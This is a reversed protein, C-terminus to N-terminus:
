RSGMHFQRIADTLFIAERPSQNAKWVKFTMENPFADSWAKLLSMSYPGAKICQPSMCYWLCSNPDDVTKKSVEIPNDQEEDDDSIEISQLGPGNQKNKLRELLISNSQAGPICAVPQGSVLEPHNEKVQIIVPVNIVAQHIDGDNREHSSVTHHQQEVDESKPGQCQHEHKIEMMESTPDREENKLKEPLGSNSQSAIPQGSELEPYSAELHSEKVQIIVPRKIVAQHIGSDNSEHSSVTHHQQELEESEPEQYQQEHEGSGKTSPLERSDSKPLLDKRPYQKEAPEVQTEDVIVKPFEHLLRSQESPTELMLKREFYKHLERRWGKENAQDILKQLNYLEKVIWQKTIVEHLSLAKEEFEVLSLRELRGDKVRRRLDECEEESFNDNSLLCIPIDKSMCSVELLVDKTVEDTRLTRKIGTVKVLMHSNRQLYDYPDSKIRVFSGIVKDDFTGPNESLEEILSRNLYLRRINETVVSALCGQHRVDLNIAENKQPKVNSSSCRQRKFSISASENKDESVHEHEDESQELNETFHPELFNYIRNKQVSKRGILSKLRADCVVKNKKVPDFLKNENCYQIIIDSVDHQSLKETTAKGISHLFDSLLNSAWGNFENTKSNVKTRMASLNGGNTNCKNLKRHRKRDNWHDNSFTPQYEDEAGSSDSLDESNGGMNPLQIADPVHISTLGEKEKVMKWYDKFLSEYTERDDFDIKGGICGVLTLCHKCLGRNRGIASFEIECICRGCIANPCSFCQFKPTNYCIFCFHWRCTWPVESELFSDDKEVCNPHYAKLCDKYDCIRLCGGDKCQFCCGECIDEKNVM